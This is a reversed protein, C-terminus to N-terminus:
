RVVFNVLRGAVHIVKVVTKGEVHAGAVERARAEVAAEAADKAIRLNGRLKGNVQVAIEIEDLALYRPDAKPWSSFAVEGAEGMRSWLDEAVHPAFPALAQVFRLAQSRSFAHSSRTADNVFTM